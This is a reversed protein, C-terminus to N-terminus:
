AELIDSYEGSAEATTDSDVEVHLGLCEMADDLTRAVTRLHAPPLLQREVRTDTHSGLADTYEIDREVHQDFAGDVTALGEVHEYVLRGEEDTQQVTRREVAANRCAPCPEGIGTDAAALEDVPANTSCAPCYGVDVTAPRTPWLQRHKWHAETAPSSAVLPRLVEYYAGVADHLQEHAEQELPGGVAQQYHQRAELSRRYAAHIARRPPSRTLQENSAMSGEM